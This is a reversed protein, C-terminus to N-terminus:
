GAAWRSAPRTSASARRHLCDRRGGERTGQRIRCRRCRRRLLARVDWDGIASPFAGIVGDGDVVPPYPSSTQWSPGTSGHPHFDVLLPVAGKGTYGSPVHLVYTRSTGGVQITHTPIHEGSRRCPESLSTGVHRWNFDFRRFGLERREAQGRPASKAARDSKGALASKAVQACQGGTGVEAGRAAEAALAPKAVEDSKGAPASRAVSGSKGAPAAEQARLRVVALQSDVAVARRVARPAAGPFVARREALVLRAGARSWEALTASDGQQLNGGLFEVRREVSDTGGSAIAGGGGPSGGTSTAVGGTGANGGSSGSSCAQSVACLASM